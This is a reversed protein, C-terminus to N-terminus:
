EKMITYTSGFLEIQTVKTSINELSFYLCLSLGIVLALLAFFRVRWRHIEQLLDWSAPIQFYKPM